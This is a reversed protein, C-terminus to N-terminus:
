SKGNDPGNVLKVGIRSLAGGATILIFALMSWAILNLIKTITAIPLIQSLQKQVAQNIQEQVSISNTSFNIESPTQFVLPASTKGMFINYSQWLAGFILVLGIVLLVYGITKNLIM